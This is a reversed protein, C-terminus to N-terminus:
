VGGHEEVGVVGRWVRAYGEVGRIGKQVGGCTLTLTLTCGEIGRWVGGCEKLPLPSYPPM